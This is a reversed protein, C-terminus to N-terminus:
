PLSAPASHATLEGLTIGPCRYQRAADVSLRGFRIAQAPCGNICGFCDACHDGFVIKGNNMTINGAPCIRACLGCRTCKEESARRDEYRLYYKMGMRMIGSLLADAGRPRLGEANRSRRAVDAAIGDLARTLEGFENEREDPPTFYYVSNDPLKIAAGYDLEAGRSHLINRFNALTNGAKGGCTAVCFISGADKLNAKMCADRVIGPVDMFYVPFVFGVADAQTLRAGALQCLPRVAANGLRNALEKATYLSNGTGSFYFISNGMGTGGKM